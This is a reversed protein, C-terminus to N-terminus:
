KHRNAQDGRLVRDDVNDPIAVDADNRAKTGKARESEVTADWKAQIHHEGDRVGVVYATTTLFVAAALFLAERKFIPGFFAWALLALMILTALGFHLVLPMLGAFLATM